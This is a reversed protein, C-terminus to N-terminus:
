YQAMGTDINQAWAAIGGELNLTNEYGNQHLWYAVQASRGGIHCMVILPEDKPLKELNEPLTNMPIDLSGEISCIALEHHERIDLLTHSENQSRLENLQEVTINM